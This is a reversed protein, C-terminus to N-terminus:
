RKLLKLLPHHIISGSYEKIKTGGFQEKFKNINLLDKDESGEYWGCFDYHSVTYERFKLIDLWHLARHAKGYVSGSIETQASHQLNFSYINSARLKTIRYFNMCLIAEEMKLFTVALIGAKNYAFLREKEAKRIKKHAAFSDFEGIFRDLEPQGISHLCIHEFSTNNMFSRIEDQTRHYIGSWIKEKEQSLDIMLTYFDNLKGNKNEPVQIYYNIAAKKGEANSLFVDEVTFLARKYRVASIDKLEAKM